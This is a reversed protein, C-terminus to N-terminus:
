AVTAIWDCVASIAEPALTQAIDGYESPAGTIAPQLLHNLGPLILVQAEPRGSLLDLIPPAHQASPVQLDHGAFIVLIPCTMGRLGALHDYRLSHRRWPSAAVMARRDVHAAPLAGQDAAEAFLSRAQAFADRGSPATRVAAAVALTLAAEREPAMPSGGVAVASRFLETVYIEEGNLGTPTLMVCFRVRGDLVAADASAHGGESHGMLGVRDPDIDPRARVVEIARTLDEALQTTTAQNFDGQSAGAGRKDFRLTALGSRTLADAWIAFPKHGAVSQDRDVRGFWTSLIVAPHPGPGEPLTLSGALTVGDRAQFQIEETPYPPTSSPTQPRPSRPEPQAVGRALSVPYGVGLHLCRGELRDPAAELEFALDFERAEFRLNRGSCTLPFAVDGRERTTLWAQDAELRLNLKSRAVGTDLTGHWPGSFDETM